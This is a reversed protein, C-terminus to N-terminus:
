LVINKIFFILNMDKNYCFKKKGFLVGYNIRKYYIILIIIYIYKYIGIWYWFVM